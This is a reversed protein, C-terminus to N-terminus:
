GPGAKGTSEVPVIRFLLDGERVPFGQDAQQQPSDAASPGKRVHVIRGDAPAVIRCLEVQKKLHALRAQELQNRGIV